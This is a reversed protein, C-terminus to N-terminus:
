VIMVIIGPPQYDVLLTGEKCSNDKFKSIPASSAEDEAGM